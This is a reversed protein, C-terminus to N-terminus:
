PIRVAAPDDAMGHVVVAAHVRQAPDQGTAVAVNEAQRHAPHLHIAVTAAAVGDALHGHVEVIYFQAVRPPHACALEADADPVLTGSGRHIGVGADVTKCTPLLSELACPM